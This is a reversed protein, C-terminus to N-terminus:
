ALELKEQLAVLDPHHEGILHTPWQQIAIDVLMSLVKFQEPTFSLTKTGDTM